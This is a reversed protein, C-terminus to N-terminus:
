PAPALPTAEGWRGGAKGPLVRGGMKSRLGFGPFLAPCADNSIKLISFHAKPLLWPKYFIYVQRQTDRSFSRQQCCIPTPQFCYACLSPLCFGGELLSNLYQCSFSCPLDALETVARLLFWLVSISAWLHLIDEWARHPLQVQLLLHSHLGYAHIRLTLSLTPSVSLGCLVSM